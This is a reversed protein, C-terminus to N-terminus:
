RPRPRVSANSPLGKSGGVSYHQTWGAKAKCGLGPCAQLFAVGYLARAFPTFRGRVLHTQLGGMITWLHASGSSGTLVCSQSGGSYCFPVQASGFYGAEKVAISLWPKVNHDESFEYGHFNSRSGSGLDLSGYSYGFFMDARPDPQASAPPFLVAFMWSLVLAKLLKGKMSIRTHGFSATSRSCSRQQTARRGLINFRNPM